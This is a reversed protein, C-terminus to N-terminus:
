GRLIFFMTNYQITLVNNGCNRFRLFPVPGIGVVLGDHGRTQDIVCINPLVILLIDPWKELLYFFHHFKGLLMHMFSCAGNSFLVKLCVKIKKNDGLHAFPKYLPRQSATLVANFHDTKTSNSRSRYLWVEKIRLGFPCFWTDVKCLHRLSLITKPM